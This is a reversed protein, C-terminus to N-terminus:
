TIRAMNLRIKALGKLIQTRQREGIREWKEDFSMDPFNFVAYEPNFIKHAMCDYVMAAEEKDTTRSGSFCQGFHQLTPQWPKGTPRWRVGKFGSSNGVTKGRNQGNLSIDALRLNVRRNDLTTFLCNEHGQLSYHEKHDVFENRNLDRGLVREFVLRSALKTRSKGEGKYFNAVAYGVPHLKTKALFWNHNYALDKDCDDFIVFLGNGKKQLPISIM